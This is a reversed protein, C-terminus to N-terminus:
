ICLAQDITMSQEFKILKGWELTGIEKWNVHYPLSRYLPMMWVLFSKPKLVLSGTIRVSHLLLSPDDRYERCTFTIISTPTQISTSICAPKHILHVWLSFVTVLWKTQKPMCHTDMLPTLCGANLSMPPSKKLRESNNCLKITRYISLLVLHGLCTRSNISSESESIKSKQM